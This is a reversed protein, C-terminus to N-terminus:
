WEAWVTGDEGYQISIGLLFMDGAVTDWAGTDRTVKFFVLDGLVPSGAVGLAGGSSVLLDNAATVTNTFWYSTSLSIALPDDHSAAGAQVLWRMTGAAEETACYVKINLYGNGRWIDPMAVKFQVSEDVTDDFAWVDAVISFLGNTIQRSEPANTSPCMAGADVWFDHWATGTTNTSWKNRYIPQPAVAGMSLFILALTLAGLAISIPLYLRRSKM